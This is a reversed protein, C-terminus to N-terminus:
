NSFDAGCFMCLLDSDAKKGAIITNKIASFPIDGEPYEEGEVYEFKIEVTEFILKTFYGCLKDLFDKDAESKFPLVKVFM